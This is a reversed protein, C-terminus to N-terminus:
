TENRFTSIHGNPRNWMNETTQKETQALVVIRRVEKTGKCVFVGKERFFLCVFCVSLCVSEVINEIKSRIELFSGIISTESESTEMSHTSLRSVPSKTTQSSELSEPAQTSEISETSQRSSTTSSTTHTSASSSLSFQSLEHMAVAAQREKTPLSKLSEGLAQTPETAKIPLFSGITSTESESTEMSHTSLRSVPSETTQSSTEM